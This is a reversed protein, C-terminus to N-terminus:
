AVNAPRKQPRGTGKNLCWSDRDGDIAIGGVWRRGPHTDLWNNHGSLVAHGHSTIHLSRDQWPTDEGHDSTLLPREGGMLPQMMWWFMTDGLYPLPERERTLDRFVEGVTIPGREAVLQVALQESLGLGTAEDPLELLHRRLARGLMPLEPTLTRSLDDLRQPTDATVARWARRGLTILADDVPRRQQWLWGLVEPALQGLGIFRDVGPIGDTAVLELRTPRRQLAQHNLIYALILQDYSDHEFWLVVRESDMAQDLGDYEHQQRRRTENEDGGFAECLFRTREDMFAQRERSHLPGICFPDSFTHFHGHLGTAPLADRLDSGCRIHVTDLDDDLTGDAREAATDLAAM